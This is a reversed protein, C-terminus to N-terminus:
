HKGRVRAALETALNEGIVIADGSVARGGVPRTALFRQGDATVDFGWTSMGFLEGSFLRVPTGASFTPALTVPVSIM